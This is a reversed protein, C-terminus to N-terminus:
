CASALQAENSNVEAQFPAPEIEYLLQGPEVTDGEKFQPKLLTGTVRVEIEVREVAQISGIFESVNPVERKEVAQVTVSPPAAQEQAM